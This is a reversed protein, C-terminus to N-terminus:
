VNVTVAVLAMPVPGADAADAGAVGDVVGPAGVPTVAVELALAEETTDHVAGAELPPLEYMSYVLQGDWDVSAAQASEFLDSLKESM